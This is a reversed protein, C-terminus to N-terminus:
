ATGTYIGLAKAQNQRATLVREAEKGDMSIVIGMSGSSNGSGNGVGARRNAVANVVEDFNQKPAILEGAQALVPVSDIGRIGGTILGGDAAGMVQSIQEAGFAVAAAAGAIGLAEGVIPIESFGAYINMASEATKITINAVSAVQGIAKLTANGSQTLQALDSFATAAGQFQESHMAKNITAYATGFKIQDQLYQNNNKIHLKAEDLAAKQKATKETDISSLLAAKNKQIFTKTEELDLNNFAKDNALIDDNLSAQQSTEIERQQALNEKINELKEQLVAKEAASMQKNKGDVLQQEVDGQQKILDTVEKEHGELQEKMAELHDKNAAEQAKDSAAKEQAAKDAAAKKGPDQGSSGRGAKSMDDKKAKLIDLQANLQKVDTIVQGTNVNIYTGGKSINILGQQVAKIEEDLQHMPDAALKNGDHIHQFFDTLLGTATTVAPAFQAGIDKAIDNFSTQLGKMSGLGTDMSQALGGFKQEVQETIQALKDHSTATADISIGYLQMGRTNGNLWQGLMQAASSVSGTKVSLDLMAQTLEPTIQTQGILTQLQAQGKTIEDSDIGTLKSQADAMAKYSAVLSDSYIGQNQLALNVEKSALETQAYQDVCYGIAAALATFAAGAGLATGALSDGTESASSGVQALSSQFDKIDGAIKIILDAM